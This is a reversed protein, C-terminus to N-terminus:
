IAVAEWVIAKEALCALGTCAEAEAAVTMVQM